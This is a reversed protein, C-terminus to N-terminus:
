DWNLGKLAVVKYKNKEAWSEILEYSTKTILIKGNTDTATWIESDYDLIIEKKNKLTKRKELSKKLM